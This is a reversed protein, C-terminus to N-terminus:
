NSKSHKHRTKQLVFETLASRSPKIMLPKTTAPTKASTTVTEPDPKPELSADPVLKKVIPGDSSSSQEVLAKKDHVQVFTPLGLSNVFSQM